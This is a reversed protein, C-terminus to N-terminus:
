LKHENSTELFAVLEKLVADIVMHKNAKDFDYKCHSCYAYTSNTNSILHEITTQKCHNCIM